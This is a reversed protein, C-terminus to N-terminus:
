SGDGGGVVDPDTFVHRKSEQRGNVGFGQLMPRSAYWSRTGCPALLARCRGVRLDISEARIPLTPQHRM